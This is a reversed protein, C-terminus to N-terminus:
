AEDQSDLQYYDHASTDFLPFGSHRKSKIKVIGSAEFLEQIPDILDKDVFTDVDIYSQFEGSLGFYPTTKELVTAYGKFTIGSNFYNYAVKTKNNLDKSIIDESFTFPACAAIATLFQSKRWGGAQEAYGDYYIADMIVIKRDPYIKLLIPPNEVEKLFNIICEQVGLTRSLNMLFKRHNENVSLIHNGFAKELNSLTLPKGDHCIPVVVSKITKTSRYYEISLLGDATELKIPENPMQDIMKSWKDVSLEVDRWTEIVHVDQGPITNLSESSDDLNSVDSTDDFQGM